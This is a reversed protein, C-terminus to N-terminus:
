IIHGAQYVKFAKGGINITGIRMKSTLNETLTFNVSGSGTGTASTVTIWSSKSVAKWKCTSSTATVTVSGNNSLYNFWASTPNFTYRCIPAKTQTITFTLGAITITGVRQTTQTNESVDYRLTGYDMGTITIWDANSVATYICESTTALVSVIGSHVQYNYTISNPNILYQCDSPPPPPPPPPTSGTQTITFTLDAVAITSTRQSTTDNQAVSYNVIGMGTGDITIWNANSIATYVCDSSTTSVTITGTHALNDFSATTPNITYECMPPPPPHPPSGGGISIPYGPHTVGNADTVFLYAQGNTFSGLRATVTISSASWNTPTFIALNTCSTYNANNGIEVRSRCNPGVAVYMDDYYVVSNSDDRGYGPFNLNSWTEGSHMTPVGSVNAVQVRSKDKNILFLDCAGNTTSGRFYGTHRQWVSRTLGSNFWGGTWRAPSNLDDGGPGVCSGQDPLNSLIVYTYDSMPFSSGFLWAFKWNPGDANNTGPVDRGTPLMQWFSYFVETVGGLDNLGIYVAGTVGERNFNNKMSKSGNFACDTSYSPSTNSSSITTWNGIQASGSSLSILSGNIGKEFDDFVKITPGAGFGSGIITIDNGQSVTGSISSISPAAFATSSLFFCWLSLFISIKKM